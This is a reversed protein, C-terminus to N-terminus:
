TIFGSVVKFAWVPVQSERGQHKLGYAASAHGWSPSLTYSGQEMFRMTKRAYQEQPQLLISLINLLICGESDRRAKSFRPRLIRRTFQSIHMGQLTSEFARFAPFLPLEPADKTHATSTM